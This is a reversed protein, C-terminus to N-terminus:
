KKVRIEDITYEYIRTFDYGRLKKKEEEAKKKTLFVGDPEGFGEYNWGGILVYLKM